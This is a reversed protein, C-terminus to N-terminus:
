NIDRLQHQLMKKNNSGLVNGSLCRPSLLMSQVGVKYADRPESMKKGYEDWHSHDVTTQRKRETPKKGDRITQQQTQKNELNPQCGNKGQM